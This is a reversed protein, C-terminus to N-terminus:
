EISSCEIYYIYDKVKKTQEVLSLGKLSKGTPFIPNSVYSEVLNSLCSTKIAYNANQAVKNDIGAVVIGIINGNKDFVPGGSNGPQVPASIQYNNVDGDFGTRSSIIGNTLKIENGLLQTLPYGLVFIDEGVEAMSLKISYPVTGFFLSSDTEIKLLALDNAKDVGVVIGKYAIDFNGKLGYIKISKAKEVVHNNTVVYGDNLAFGTGTWKTPENEKKIKEEADKVATQYLSKTPFIKSFAYLLNVTSSNGRFQFNSNDKAEFYFLDKHIFRIKRTGGGKTPYELFYTDTEGLRQILDLGINGELIQTTYKFSEGEKKYIVCVGHENDSDGNMIPGTIIANFSYDIDYIGEIPDIELINKSFYQKAHELSLFPPGSITTINSVKNMTNNSFSDQKNDEKKEPTFTYNLADLQKFIGKSAYKLDGKATFTNGRGSAKFVTIGKSDSLTLILLSAENYNIYWEYNAYLLLDKNESSMKDIESSNVTQFGIKTFYDSLRSEVGYRDGTENIHIFKYSNIRHAYCMASLGILLFFVFKKM